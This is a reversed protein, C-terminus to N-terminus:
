GNDPKAPGEPAGWGRTCFPDEGGFAVDDVFPRGEPPGWNEPVSGPPAVGATRPDPEEEVLDESDLELQHVQTQPEDDTLPTNEADTSPGASAGGTPFFDSSPFAGDWTGEGEELEELMVVQTNQASTEGETLDLLGAAAALDGSGSPLDLDPPPDLDPPLSPQAPAALGMGDTIPERPEVLAGAFPDPGEDEAAVAGAFPDPDPEDELGILGTTSVEVSSLEGSDLFEFADQGEGIDISISEPGAPPVPTSPEPAPEAGGAIPHNPALRALEARHRDVMERTGRRTFIQVLKAVAEAANADDGGSLHIDRIKEHAGVHDPDLDFVKEVHQLAKERLGYRVFVDTETLIKQIQSKIQSSPDQSPVTPQPILDMSGLAIGLDEDPLMDASAFGPASRPPPPAPRPALSPAMPGPPPPDMPRPRPALSPAVVPPGSTPPATPVPTGGSSLPGFIPAPHSQPVVPRSPGSEALAEAAEPDTPEIELVQRYVASADATRGQEQHLRALERYVFLTKQTQGLDSFARALLQLTEVDKTNEKYLVQLKALGRKTEGQSLLLRAVEKVVDLRGPDHYVLREAVKIYDEVRNQDKLLAAAREFEMAADSIMQERSFGEALKIRSAVNHPDLDVMRRLVELSRKADGAEEHIRSAHQYQSLAESALNLQEYLEALRLTVELHNPDHKLIQKYVAVAKLFFGQESYSEAVQRYVRTASERDGQKSYVDGLKLLTRVDSPDEAILKQLEKIAKEWQGKTIYKQVQNLIKTKNAM